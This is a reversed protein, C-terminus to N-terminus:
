RGPQVLDNTRGNSQAGNQGNQALTNQAGVQQTRLAAAIGAVQAARDANMAARFGAIQEPTYGLMQWIQEDPVGLRKHAEATQAVATENRTEADAWVIEISADEALNFPGFANAVKIAMKLADEWAQGFVRQRKTARAVLGSELQKLAEGSPVDGGVPRLYYQPTRSIGAIAATIAWIVELMPTLNAAEIRRLTAGSLEILRGPAIRLEDEGALDDDSSAPGLGAGDAYEAVMVPFGSADAAAILDLWAKNLANQLGIVQEIESGGPNALEFVPVGLSGQAGSWSLPWGPDGEDMTQAWAGMGGAARKYKRIEGPLYVTKREIPAGSRLPDTAWFYRTAFLVRSPDATDRHIRMGSSGDDIRHEVIRPRQTETDYDVMIYSAKDTLAHQYTDQEGLDLRNAKWWQWLLRALEADPGEADDATAGNVSFGTVSLRESLTDVISKVLNHAFPFADAHVLTGLFEMQRETLLVPHVGAYYERLSRVKTADADQREVLAQMHIFRELEAPTLRTPDIM